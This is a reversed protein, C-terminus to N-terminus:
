HRLADLARHAEQDLPEADPCHELTQALQGLRAARMALDRNRELRNLWGPPTRITTLGVECESIFMSRLWTVSSGALTSLPFRGQATMLPGDACRERGWPFRRQVEGRLRPPLSSVRLRLEWDRRSLRPRAPQSSVRLPPVRFPFHGVLWVRAPFPRSPAWPDFPLASAMLSRGKLSNHEWSFLGAV